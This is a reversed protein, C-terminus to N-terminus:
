FLRYKGSAFNARFKIFKGPLKAGSYISSNTSLMLMQFKSVM